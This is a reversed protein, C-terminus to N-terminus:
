SFAPAWSWGMPMRNMTVDVYDGRGGAMRAGFHASILLALAFQYFYSVGDTQAMYKHSLVFAILAHILPLGMEPPKDYVANLPRCDQLLRLLTPVKKPTTFLPLTYRLTENAISVTDYELLVDLHQLMFRSAKKLHPLPGHIHSTFAELDFLVRLCDLYIPDMAYLAALDIKNSTIKAITGENRHTRSVPPRQVNEGDKFFWAFGGSCGTFIPEPLPTSSVPIGPLKCPFAPNIFKKVQTRQVDNNEKGLFSATPRKVDHRPRSTINVQTTM